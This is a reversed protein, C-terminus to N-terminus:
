QHVGHRKHASAVFIGDTSSQSYKTFCGRVRATASGLPTSVAQNPGAKLDETAGQSWATPQKPSRM